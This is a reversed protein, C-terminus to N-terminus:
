PPSAIEARQLAGAVPAERFVEMAGEAGVLRDAHPAGSGIGLHIEKRQRQLSGSREVGLPQDLRREAKRELRRFPRDLDIGVVVMGPQRRPDAPNPAVAAEIHDPLGLGRHLGIGIQRDRREAARQILSSVDTAHFRTDATEDFLQAARADQDHMRAVGFAVRQDILQLADAAVHAAYPWRRHSIGRSM